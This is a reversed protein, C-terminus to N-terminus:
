KHLFLMVDPLHQDVRWWTIMYYIGWVVLFLYTALLFRPVTGVRESIGSIPSTHIESADHSM